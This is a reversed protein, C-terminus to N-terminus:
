NPNKSKWVSEGKALAKQLAEELTSIPILELGEKIEAHIEAVQKENEKPFLITTVGAKKAALFKETLGGVALVRGRITIEGTMAVDHRVKAGTLASLMAVAMTVGASPGDKPVAGEPIHIHIETKQYFDEELQYSQAGARIASFAAEASEKMVKGLNGTLRLKGEGPMVNVEVSLTDGGFRTWALGRVVGVQPVAYIHDTEFPAVGLYQELNKTGVTIKKKEGMLIEKVAKRCIAAINQELKRVGAERTYGEIIKELAETKLQLQSAKLGHKKRQKPVLHEAAIHYKEQATYSNLSIVEMRDLLPQSITETTNATCIFLVQSLDYPLEVFHDRFTHNQEGDLVELLAAAPDGNFSTCLKDVEDLLILPNISGAQKMANIIRGPMAGIYTRRHGRIEAEDKIGGLSMRVYNRGMARAVSRAVSTKGVGPPGVLCLISASGEAANKRVALFELIREKVKELGYHDEQLIQEALHLDENDETKEQWPLQLLTDIYNRAVNAEPSTVPIRKMREIEKELVTRVAEPPQKQELKELFAAADAAVGDKDGLEEQIVKMQERLYYERQQRDMEKKTKAEIERKLRLIEIEEEMLACVQQLRVLPHLQELLQQRTDPYVDLVACIVDALLGPKKAAVANSLADPFLNSNILKGYQEFRELAIKMLARAEVDVEQPLDQELTILEAGDYAGLHLMQEMRGRELGEVIVHTINGPLHLVQRLKVVTGIACLDKRKPVEVSPDRQATLFLLEDNKEAQEVAALSRERGVPFSVVMNPFVTMNRLAILPMRIPEKKEM